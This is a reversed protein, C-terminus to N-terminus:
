KTANRYANFEARMAAAERKSPRYSEAEATEAKRAKDLHRAATSVMGIATYYRAAALHSERSKIM